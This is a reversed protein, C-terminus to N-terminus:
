KIWAQEVALCVSLTLRAHHTALRATASRPQFLRLPNLSKQVFLHELWPRFRANIPEISALESYLPGVPTTLTTVPSTRM